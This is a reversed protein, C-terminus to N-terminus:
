MSHGHAFKNMSHGVHAPLNSEPRTPAVDAVSTGAALRENSPTALFAHIEGKHPGSMVTGMGSVQGRDNINSCNIVFLNSDAPILTNFDIMAGGDWLFGHSWNFDADINNGVVQDRNNLGTAFASADGPLVGLNTAPGDAGQLWVAAYGTSNDAAGVQGAIQGRDNIVYAFNSGAGGLDQLQFAKNNKWMVAHTAAICNGSYGVALGEDNIGFAFGDFDHPLLPLGDVTGQRGWLAPLAVRNNIVGAPCTGDLAGNEAFGVAQGFNNIASAQGNYGGLTPLASMHFFRWIFPVCILHTGFGCIDEGNPDMEATESQGVAEGPNNIGGWNIWSNAGPKGLTGLDINIGFANIVARGRAVTTLLSAEPPNVTGDMNETWGQANLGMGMSFTDKPNDIGQDVITYSQALADSFCGLALVAVWPVWFNRWGLNRLRRLASM